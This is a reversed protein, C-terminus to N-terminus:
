SHAHPTLPRRRPRRITGNTQWSSGAPRLDHPASATNTVPWRLAARQASCALVDHAVAFSRHQSRELRRKGGEVVVLALIGICRISYSLLDGGVPAARMRHCQQDLGARNRADVRVRDGGNSALEAVTGLIM